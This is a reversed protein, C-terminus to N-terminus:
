LGAHRRLRRHRHDVRMPLCRRRQDASSLQALPPLEDLADWVSRFGEARERCLACIALHAEFQRREAMTLRGDLYAVLKKETYGCNM